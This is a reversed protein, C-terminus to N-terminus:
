ARGYPTSLTAAEVRTTRGRMPSSLLYTRISMYSRSLAVTMDASGGHRVQAQNEVHIAKMMTTMM